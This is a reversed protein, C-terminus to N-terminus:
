HSRTASVSIERRRGRVLFAFSVALVAALGYWIMAYQLHENRLNVKLPAPRPVGGEPVPAEQDIYFPVVSGWDYAAAMARHDRVFWLDATADHATVFWGPPEPWRMVGVVDVADESLGIPRLSANPLPNPVYGRNVVIISGDALRAPAFAFYGPGKIDERLGSGSSYVRGERGGLFQVRMSVRRFEDHAPDLSAWRERAPLAVPPATLRQDLM